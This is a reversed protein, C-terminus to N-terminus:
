SIEFFSPRGYDPTKFHLSCDVRAKAPCSIWPTRPHFISHLVVELIVREDIFEGANLFPVTNSTPSVICITGFCTADWGSGAHLGHKSRSDSGKLGQEVHDGWKTKQVKITDPRPSVNRVLDLRLRKEAAPKRPWDIRSEPHAVTGQPDEAYHNM